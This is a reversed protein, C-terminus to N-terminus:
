YARGAKSSSLVLAATTDHFIDIDDSRRPWNLNLILGGALYSSPSRNLSLRQMIRKQLETLAM